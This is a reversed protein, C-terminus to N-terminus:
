QQNKNNKSDGSTVEKFTIKVDFTHPQGNDGGKGEKFNSLDVKVASPDYAFCYRKSQVCTVKGPNQSTGGAAFYITTSGYKPILVNLNFNGPPTDGGCVPDKTSGAAKDQVTISEAKDNAKIFKLGLNNVDSDMCDVNSVNTQVPVSNENVMTISMKATPETAMAVSSLGLSLAVICFSFYTKRNKM